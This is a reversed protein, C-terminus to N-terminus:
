NTVGTTTLAKRLLCTVVRIAEMAAAAVLLLLGMTVTMTTVVVAVLLAMMIVVRLVVWRIVRVAEVMAVEKDAKAVVEVAAM